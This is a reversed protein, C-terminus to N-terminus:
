MPRERGGLRCPAPIPDAPARSTGRPAGRPRSSRQRPQSCSPASRQRRLLRSGATASPRPARRRRRDHVPPERTSRARRSRRPARVGRRLHFTPRATRYPRRGGSADPRAADEDRRRHDHRGPGVLVREVPELVGAQRHETLHRGGAPEVDACLPDEPERVLRELGDRPRVEAAGEGSSTRVAPRPPIPPAWPKPTVRFPPRASTTSTSGSRPRAGVKRRSPQRRPRIRHPARRGGRCASGARHGKDAVCGIHQWSKEPVLDLEVDDGVLRSGVVRERSRARPKVASSAASACASSGSNLRATKSESAAWTFAISPYRSRPATTKSYPVSDARLGGRVSDLVGVGNGAEHACVHSRDEGTAGPREAPDAEGSVRLVRRLSSTTM